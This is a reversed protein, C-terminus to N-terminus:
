HAPWVAECCGVVQAVEEPSLGPYFPLSVTERFCAEAGPYHRAEGASHLMADVGRRVTVGHALCARATEDFSRGEQRVLFRFPPAMRIKTQWQRTLSPPLAALYREQISHRRDNADNCREIQGLAISAHLDGFSSFCDITSVAHKLAEADSAISAAVAGGFGAPICKTARFSCVFYDGRDFKPEIVPVAANFAQCLDGILAVGFHRFAAADLPLGFISVLIIARVRDSMVQQVTAPSMLWDSGVDCLRPVAKLFRVADAVEHCVYTPLVVEDGEQVGAAALAAIIGASGTPVLDVRPVAFLVALRERLAAAVSGDALVYRDMLGSVREVDRPTIWPRSHPIVNLM